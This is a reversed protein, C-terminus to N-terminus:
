TEVHLLLHGLAEQWAEQLRELRWAANAPSTSPLQVAKRGTKPYLHKQYLRYSTAGNCFVPIQGACAFIPELDAPTVDRISSDSSGIITCSQITDYLAIGHIRLLQIKEEKTQPLETKCLSALVRWFRNQPHGYYFAQERSKVSPISGLILLRSNADYIPPFTHSVFQPSQQKKQQKKEQM